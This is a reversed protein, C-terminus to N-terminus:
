VSIANENAQSFNNSFFLSSLSLRTCHFVITRLSGTFLQNPFTVSVIGADQALAVYLIGTYRGGSDIKRDMKKRKKSRKGRRGEEEFRTIFDM